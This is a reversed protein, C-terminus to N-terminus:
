NSQAQAKAALRSRFNVPLLKTKVKRQSDREGEKEWDDLSPATVEAHKSYARHVAKSNHGL